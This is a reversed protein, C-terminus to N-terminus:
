AVLKSFIQNKNKAETFSCFLFLLSNILLSKPNIDLTFVMFVEEKM